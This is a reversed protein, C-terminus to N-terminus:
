KILSAFHTQKAKPQPMTFSKDLRFNFSLGIYFLNSKTYNAYDVEQKFDEGKFDTNLFNGPYYKFKLDWGAPFRIGTFFSHGFRESRPSFWESFKSKEGEFFQKQKYHFFLEYSAGGYIFMDKDLIGLKLALPIGFSYTRRKTRIDDKKSIFGINRLSYGSYLGLFRTFNYHYKQGIHFFMTFRMPTNVPEGNYELDAFSFILEGGNEKYFKDNQASLNQFALFVLVSFLAIYKM